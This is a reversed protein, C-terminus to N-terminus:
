SIATIRGNVDYQDRVWLAVRAVKTKRVPEKGQLTLYENVWRAIGDVGSKDTIAGRPPRDLFKRTDFINYIREDKFLGDAHIGACTMNFEEGV